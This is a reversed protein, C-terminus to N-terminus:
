LGPNNNITKEMIVADHKNMYYEPDIGTQHYGAREYLCIAPKNEEDVNLYYNYDSFAEECKKLLASGIGKNRFEPRVALTMLCAAKQGSDFEMAAFGAFQGDVLATFKKISSDAFVAGYDLFTWADTGFTERDLQLAPGMDVLAAKRIEFSM